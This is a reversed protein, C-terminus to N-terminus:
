PVSVRHRGGPTASSQCLRGVCAPQRRSARRASGVTNGVTSYSSSECANREEHCTNSVGEGRGDAATLVLRQGLTQRFNRRRTHDHAARCVHQGADGGIDSRPNLVGSGAETGVPSEVGGVEVRRRRRQTQGSTGRPLADPWVQGDGHRPRDRVAQEVRMQKENM